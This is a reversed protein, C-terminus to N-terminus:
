LCLLQFFAVKHSVWKKNTLTLCTPVRESTSNVTRCSTLPLRQCGAELDQMKYTKSYLMNNERLTM